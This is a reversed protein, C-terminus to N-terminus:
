GSMKDHDFRRTRLDELKIKTLLCCGLKRLAENCGFCKESPWGCVMVKEEDRVDKVAKMM